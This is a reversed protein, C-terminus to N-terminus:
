GVSGSGGATSGGGPRPTRWCPTPAAALLARIVGRAAWRLDSPDGGVSSASSATPSPLSYRGGAADGGERGLATVDHGAAKWRRALRGGANGKGIVTIRM